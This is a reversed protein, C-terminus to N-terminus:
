IVPHSYLETDNYNGHMRGSPEALGEFGDSTYVHRLIVNQDVVSRMYWPPGMINYYLIMISVM